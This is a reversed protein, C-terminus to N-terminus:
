GLLGSWGAVVLGVDQAKSQDARVAAGEKVQQLVHLSQDQLINVM